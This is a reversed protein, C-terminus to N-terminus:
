REYDAVGADALPWPMSLLADAMGRRRYAPGHVPAGRQSFIFEYTAKRVEQEDPANGERYAGDAPLPFVFTSVRAGPNPCAVTPTSGADIAPMFHPPLCPLPTSSCSRPPRSRFSRPSSSPFARKRFTPPRSSHQTDWTFSHAQEAVGSESLDVVNAHLPGLRIQSPYTLARLRRPPKAPRPYMKVSATDELAQQLPVFSWIHMSRYLESDESTSPQALALFDLDTSRSLLDNVAGKESRTKGLVLNSLIQALEATAEPLGISDMASEGAVAGRVTREVLAMDLPELHYTRCVETYEHLNTNSALRTGAM